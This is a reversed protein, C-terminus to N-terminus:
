SSPCYEGIIKAMMVTFVLTFAVILAIRFSYGELYYIRLFNLSSLILGVLLSVRM